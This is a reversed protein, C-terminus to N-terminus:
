VIFASHVLSVMLHSCYMVIACVPTVFGELQQERARYQLPPTALMVAAHAVGM